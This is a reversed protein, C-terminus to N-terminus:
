RFVGRLVDLSSIIGVLKGEDIVLLRHVSNEVMMLGADKLEASSDISLVYRSMVEDVRGEAIAVSSGIEDVAAGHLVYFLPYGERESRPRDPDALDAVTIVGVPEGTASIVPAGSIGNTTLLRSATEISTDCAVAFVERTMQDSVYM